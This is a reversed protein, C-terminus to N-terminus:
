RARHREYTQLCKDTVSRSCAPYNATDSVPQGTNPDLMPGGMGTDTGQTGNYGAPVMAAMSIVKIGRRDRRPNVNSPEVMTGTSATANAMNTQAMNTQAMGAQGNDGNWGTQTQTATTTQDNSSDTAVQPQGNADTTSSQGTYGASGPGSTTPTQALATGGLLIAIAFAFSRM